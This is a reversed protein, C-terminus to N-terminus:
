RGYPNARATSLGSVRDYATRMHDLTVVQVGAQLTVLGIEVVLRRFARRNGDTAHYTALMCKESLMAKADLTDAMQKVFAGLFGRWTADNAFQTMQLHTPIRDALAKDVEKLGSFSADALLILGIKTRDMLETLLDSAVTEIQDSRRIRHQTALCHAQDVFIVKTGKQVLADFAVDRMTTVRNKAVATFPYDLARLLSSVILGASPNARLRITLSGYGKDFLENPPLSRSFYESITTKSTGPAGTILAGQPTNLRRSLQYIRDCVELAQKFEPFAVYVREIREAAILAETSYTLLRRSRIQKDDEDGDEMDVVEFNKSMMETWILRILSLFM